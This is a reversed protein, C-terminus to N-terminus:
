SVMFRLSCGLRERDRHRCQQSCSRVVSDGTVQTTLPRPAMGVGSLSTSLKPLQASRFASQSIINSVNRRIHHSRMLHKNHLSHKGQLVRAGPPLSIFFLADLWAQPVLSSSKPTLHRAMRWSPGLSLQRLSCLTQTLSGQQFCCQLTSLILREQRFIGEDRSGRFPPSPTVASSWSPSVGSWFPLCWWGTLGQGPTELPGRCDRLCGWLTPKWLAKSSCFVPGMKLSLNEVSRKKMGSLPSPPGPWPHRAGHPRLHLSKQGAAHASSGTVGLEGAARPHRQATGM